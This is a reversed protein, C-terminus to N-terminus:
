QLFKGVFDISSQVCVHHNELSSVVKDMDM